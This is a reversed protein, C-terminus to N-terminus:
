VTAAWLILGAAGPRPDTRTAHWTEREGRGRTAADGHGRHMADGPAAAGARNM